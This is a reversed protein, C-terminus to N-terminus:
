ERLHSVVLDDILGVLQDFGHKRVLMLPTDLEQKIYVVVQQASEILDNLCSLLLDCPVDIVDETVEIDADLKERIM